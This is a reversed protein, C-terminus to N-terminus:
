SCSSIFTIVRLINILLMLCPMSMWGGVNQQMKSRYCMDYVDRQCHVKSATLLLEFLGDFDDVHRSELYYNLLGKLRSAFAM